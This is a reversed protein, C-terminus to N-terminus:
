FRLTTKHGAFAAPMRCSTLDDAFPPLPLISAWAVAHCTHSNRRKATRRPRSSPTERMAPDNAKVESNDNTGRNAMAKAMNAAKGAKSETRWSRTLQDNRVKAGVMPSTTCNCILRKMSLAPRSDATPMRDSTTVAMMSSTVMSPVM